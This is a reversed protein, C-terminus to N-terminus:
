CITPASAHPIFHWAWEDARAGSLEVTLGGPVFRALFLGCATKSRPKIRLRQKVPENSKENNDQTRALEGAPYGVRPYFPM